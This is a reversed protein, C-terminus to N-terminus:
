GGPKSRRLDWCARELGQSMWLNCPLLVEGVGMYGIFGTSFDQFWFAWVWFGFGLIM